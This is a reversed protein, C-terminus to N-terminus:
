LAMELREYILMGMIEWAKEGLNFGCLNRVGFNMLAGYAMMFWWSGDAGRTPHGGRTLKTLVKTGEWANTPVTMPAM